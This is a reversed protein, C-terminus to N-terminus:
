VVERVKTTKGTAPSFYFYNGHMDRMEKWDTISPDNAIADDSQKEENETQALYRLEACRCWVTLTAREHTKRCWWGGVPPMALPVATEAPLQQKM